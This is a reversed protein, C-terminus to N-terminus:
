WFFRVPLMLDTEEIKRMTHGQNARIFYDGEDTEKIVSFRQKTDFYAVAM